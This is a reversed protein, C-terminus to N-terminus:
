GMIEVREAYIRVVSVMGTEHDYSAGVEVRGVIRLPNPTPLVPDGTVYVLAIDNPWDAASSCFPCIALQVRSLVFFDLEAKLPPAMYGEIVVQQGDLSVLKNSLVLGTRLDYGDYFEDFTLDVPNAEFRLRERPTPQLVTDTAAAIVAASGQVLNTNLPTATPPNASAQALLAGFGSASAETAQPRATPAAATPSAGGAETPIATIRAPGNSAPSCAGTFLATLAIVVALIPMRQTRSQSISRM